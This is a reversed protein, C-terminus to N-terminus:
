FSAVSRHVDLTNTVILKHHTALLTAPYILLLYYQDTAIEAIHLEYARGPKIDYQLSLNYNGMQWWMM